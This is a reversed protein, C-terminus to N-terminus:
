KNNKYDALGLLVDEADPHSTQESKSNTKMDNKIIRVFSLRNGRTRDLKAKINYVKGEVFETPFCGTVWYYTNAEKDQFIIVHTTKGPYGPIAIDHRLEVDNLTMEETVDVVDM